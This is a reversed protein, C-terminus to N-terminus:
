IRHIIKMGLVADLWLPAMAFVIGITRDNPPTESIRIYGSIKRSL